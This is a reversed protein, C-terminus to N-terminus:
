PAKSEMKCHIRRKNIRHPLLSRQMNNIRLREKEQVPISLDTPIEKRTNEEQRFRTSWNIEPFHTMVVVVVVRRRMVVRRRRRVVVRRRRVVMRTAATVTIGQDAAAVWKQSAEAEALLPKLVVDNASSSPRNTGWLLALLITGHVPRRRNTM